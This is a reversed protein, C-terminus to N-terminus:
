FVYRGRRGMRKVYAACRVCLTPIWDGRVVEVDNWVPKVNREVMTQCRPEEDGDHVEVVVMGELDTGDTLEINLAWFKGVDM